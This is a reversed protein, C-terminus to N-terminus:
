FPRDGRLIHVWKSESTVLIDKHYEAEGSMIAERVADEDIQNDNFIAVLKDEYSPGITQTFPIAQIM